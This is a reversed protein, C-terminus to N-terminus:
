AIQINAFTDTKNGWIGEDLEHKRDLLVTQFGAEDAAELEAVVDSLFVIEEPPRKLAAAIKEYSLTERKPGTTTDFYGSFMPTIDGAESHGYLLKQAAISGSSYVYLAKGAEHWRKLGAVADDYIHGKFAETEFGEKWIMGQIAKLPTAKRDEDIWRILVSILEDATLDPADEEERVADLHEQIDGANARVFDGMRERAYPFMVDHVFSISSTTGEIDTVVAKVGKLSIM